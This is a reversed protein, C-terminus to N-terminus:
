KGVTLTVQSFAPASGGSPSQAVVSGADKKPGSRYQTRATFKAAVLASRADAAKRGVVNPVSRNPENAGTAVTLRVTSGAPAQGTPTERIIQGSPQSARTPDTEAVFGAAEVQGAGTSMPQGVVNPVSASANPTTATAATTTTPTTTVAVSKGNSVHITVRKGKPLRSGGGPKQSVVVGGPKPSPGLIATVSYGHRVLRLIAQQRTMGVVGPVIPQHHHGRFAFLWILVGAVVVV